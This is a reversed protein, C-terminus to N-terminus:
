VSYHIGCEIKDRGQWRGAREDAPDSTPRTCHTCGISGYGLDHLYNYPVDNELLYSWVQGRTWNALPNIKVLNHKADWALLPLDTRTSAQDRRLGTLWAEYGQLVEALPIVKRLHCCLDPNVQWLQPQYLQAQVAPTLTSKRIELQIPYRRQVRERLAYTEEFLFDTDITIVKVGPNLKALHDLVVMGTPGFSTVLAVKSGFTALSWVLLENLPREAFYHNIESFDTEASFPSASLFTMNGQTLHTESDPGLM